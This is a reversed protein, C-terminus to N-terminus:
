IVLFKLSRRYSDTELANEKILFGLRKAAGVGSDFIKIRGGYFEDILPRLFVYHTCGLVVGEVRRYRSLIKHVECRLASIDDIRNEVQEALDHQPAIILRGNDWRSM